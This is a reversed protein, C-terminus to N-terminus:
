EKKETHKRVRKKLVPEAVENEQPAEAEVEPKDEVAKYKPKIMLRECEEYIGTLYKRRDEMKEIWNCFGLALYKEVFQVKTLLLASPAHFDAGGAKVNTKEM